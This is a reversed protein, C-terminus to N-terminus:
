SRYIGPSSRQGIYGHGSLGNRYDSADVKERIILSYGMANIVAEIESIKPNRAGNRWKRMASASVGARKALDEQSWMDANIRKWMWRVFPHVGKGEPVKQTQFGRM